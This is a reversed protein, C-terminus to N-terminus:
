SKVKDILLSEVKTYIEEVKNRLLLNYLYNSIFVIIYGGIVDAPYHNGVFVRSFGVVISLITLTIGLLRDYKALGVAISMTGTAHNSPFSSATDHPVLLNVKNNVFPRYVHFISRIILNILLNILTFVGTSVAVKRSEGNRKVIGLVFVIVIAAMFIFPVYNSFFIMINDIVTNRNALNNILRFLEMNM